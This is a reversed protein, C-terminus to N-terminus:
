QETAEPQTDPHRRLRQHTGEARDRKPHPTTGLRTLHADDHLTQRMVIQREAGGCQLHPLMHDHDVVASAALDVDLRPRHM